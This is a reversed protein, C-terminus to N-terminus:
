PTVEVREVGAFELHLTGGECTTIAMCKLCNVRRCGRDSCCWRVTRSQCAHCWPQAGWASLHGGYLGTV